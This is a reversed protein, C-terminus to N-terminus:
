RPVVGRPHQNLLVVRRALEATPEKSYGIIDFFFDSAIRTTLITM